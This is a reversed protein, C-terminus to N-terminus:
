SNVLELKEKKSQISPHAYNSMTHTTLSTIKCIMTQDVGADLLRTILSHRFAHFGKRIGTERSVKAFGRSISFTKADSTGALEPLLYQLNSKGEAKNMLREMLEAPVPIDVPDIYFRKTKQPVFRISSTDPHLSEVTLNRIDIARMGTHWGMMIPIVMLPHNNIATALLLEYEKKTIVEKVNSLKAGSLHMATTSIEPRRKIEKMKVLWNAMDGIVKLYVTLTSARMGSVVLEAKMAAIMKDSFAIKVPKDMLREVAWFRKAMGEMYGKYGRLTLHVVKDSKWELYAEVAEDLRMM